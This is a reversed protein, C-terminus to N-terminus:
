FLLFLCLIAHLLQQRKTCTCTTSRDMLQNYICTIYNGDVHIQRNTSRERM